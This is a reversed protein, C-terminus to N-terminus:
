RLKLFKESYKERLIGRIKFKFNSKERSFFTKLKNLIFEVLPYPTSLSLLSWDSARRKECVAESGLLPKPVSRALNPVKLPKPVSRVLCLVNLHKPVSCAFSPVKLPKPVSRALSPAKLPKPM